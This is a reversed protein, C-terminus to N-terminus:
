SQKAASHPHRIDKGEIMYSTYEGINKTHDGIRELSRLIWIISLIKELHEVDGPDASVEVLVSEIIQRCEKDIAHDRDHLLEHIDEYRALANLADHLMAHVKDAFTGIKKVIPVYVIGKPICPIQKGIKKIEDGVRELDSILKLTTIVARLDRAMPQHLALIRTCKSDAKMELLNVLRDSVVITKALQADGNRLAEIAQRLLKEVVGGMELVLGSLNDLDQEFNGATHSANLEQM